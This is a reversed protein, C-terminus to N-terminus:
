VHHQTAFWEGKCVKNDLDEATAIECWANYLRHKLIVPVKKRNDKPANTLVKYWVRGQVILDKLRPTAWDTTDRPMFLGFLVLPSRTYMRYRAYQNQKIRLKLSTGGDQLYEEQYTCKLQAKFEYIGYPDGDEKYVYPVTVIRDAGFVDDQPKSLACGQMASLATFHIESLYEQRREDSIM